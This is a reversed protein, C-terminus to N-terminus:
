TDIHHSTTATMKASMGRRNWLPFVDAYSGTPGTAGCSMCRMEGREGSPWFVRTHEIPGGGCFPCPLIGRDAM